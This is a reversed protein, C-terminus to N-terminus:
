LKEIILALEKRVNDIYNRAEPGFGAEAQAELEKNLNDLIIKAEDKTNAPSLGYTIFDETLDSVWTKDNSSDGTKLAQLEKEKADQWRCAETVDAVVSTPTVRQSPLMGKASMKKIEQDIAHSSLLTDLEKENFVVAPTSKKVKATAESSYCKDCLGSADTIKGCSRCKSKAPTEKLVDEVIKKAEQINLVHGADISNGELDLVEWEYGGSSPIVTGMMGEYQVTISKDHDPKSWDLASAKIPLQHM